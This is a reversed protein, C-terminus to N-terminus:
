ALFNVIRMPAESEYNYNLLARTHKEDITVEYNWM